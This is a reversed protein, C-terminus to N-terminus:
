NYVCLISSNSVLASYSQSTIVKEIQGKWKEPACVSDTTLGEGNNDSQVSNQETNNGSNSEPALLDQYYKDVRRARVGV